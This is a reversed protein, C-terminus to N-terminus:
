VRAPRNSFREDKNLEELAKHLIIKMHDPTIVIKGSENPPIKDSYRVVEEMMLEFIKDELNDLLDLADDQFTIKDEKNPM